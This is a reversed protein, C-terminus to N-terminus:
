FVYIQDVQFLVAKEATCFQWHVLSSFVQMTKLDRYNTYVNTCKLIYFYIHLYHTKSHLKIANRRMDKGSHQSPCSWESEGCVSFFCPLFHKLYATNDLWINTAQSHSRFVWVLCGPASVYQIYNDAAWSGKGVNLLEECILFFFFFWCVFGKNKFTCELYM